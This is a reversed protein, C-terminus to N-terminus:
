CLAVNLAPLLEALAVFPCAVSGQAVSGRAVCQCQETLYYVVYKIVEIKISFYQWIKRIEQFNQEKELCFIFGPAL